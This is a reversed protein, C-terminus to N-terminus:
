KPKGYNWEGRMYKRIATAGLSEWPMANLENFDFLNADTLKTEIRQFTSPLVAESTGSLVMKRPAHLAVPAIQRILPLDTLKAGTMVLPQVNTEALATLIAQPDMTWLPVVVPYIPSTMRSLMVLFDPLRETDNVYYLGSDKKPFPLMARVLPDDILAMFVEWHRDNPIPVALPIQHNCHRRGGPLKVTFPSRQKLSIANVGARGQELWAVRSEDYHIGYSGVVLM